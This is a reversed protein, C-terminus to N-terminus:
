LGRLPGVTRKAGEDLFPEKGQFVLREATSAHVRGVGFGHGFGHPIEQFLSERYHTGGLRLERCREATSWAAAM